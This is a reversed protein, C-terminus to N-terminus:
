GNTEQKEACAVHYWGGKRQEGPDLIIDKGCITCPTIRGEQRAVKRKLVGVFYRVANTTVRYFRQETIDADMVEEPGLKETYSRLTSEWPLYYRPLTKVGWVDFWHDWVLNFEADKRAREESKVQRFERIQAERERIERKFVEFRIKPRLPM